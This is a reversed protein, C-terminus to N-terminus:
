IQQEIQQRLSSKQSQIYKKNIEYKKAIEDLTIM